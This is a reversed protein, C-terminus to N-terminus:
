DVGHAVKAQAIDFSFAPRPEIADPMDDFGALSANPTPAKPQFHIVNDNATGKRKEPPQLPLGPTFLGPM